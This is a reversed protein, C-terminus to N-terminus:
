LLTLRRELYLLMVIVPKVKEVLNMDVLKKISTSEIYVVKHFHLSLFQILAKTFSDRFILVTTQNDCNNNQTIITGRPYGDNNLIKYGKNENKLSFRPSEDFYSKMKDIGIMNTLDGSKRQIYDINFNSTDFPPLKLKNYTQDCIAKYGIYAGYDNWHTDFKYYLQERKKATMLEERVDVLPFQKSKFYSVLQDALTTDNKIQMKMTFSLDDKYITHKNPFFGVIYEINKEALKKKIEVQKKYVSDLKQERLLNTNSYSDYIGKSKDNYFMFGNKGFLVLKPKPSIKFYDLKLKSNWNVFLNRLGFNDSYYQEFNKSYDKTLNFEPKKALERKENVTSNIDIDFHKIFMPAILIIVFIIIFFYPNLSKLQVRQYYLALFISISFVLLLLITEYDLISKAESLNQITKKVDFDSTFNPDFRNNITQTILTEGEWKIYKNPIFNDHIDFNFSRTQSILKVSKITIGKQDKNRGVDVRLKTISKEFPLKFSITQYEQSGIVKLRISQKETLSKEGEELYFLQFDDNIPVVANLELRIETPEIKYHNLLILGTLFAFLSLILPIIIKKM